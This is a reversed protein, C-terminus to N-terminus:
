IYIAKVHQYAALGEHGLERGLGSAKVGGFPADLPIAYRFRPPPPPSRRLPRPIGRGPRTSAGEHGGTAPLMAPEDLDVEEVSWDENPAWLVAGNMKM